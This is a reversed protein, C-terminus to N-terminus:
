LFLAQPFVFHLVGVIVSVIGIYKKERVCFRDLFAPLEAGSSSAAYNQALLSGGAAIGGLAPLLDGIVPVRSMTVFLKLIGVLVALIGLVLRFTTNEFFSPAASVGEGSDGDGGRSFILALGCFVNLIVSLFWLQM